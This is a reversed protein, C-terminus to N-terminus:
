GVLTAALPPLLAERFCAVSADAAAHDLQRPPEQLKLFIAREGFPELFPGVAARALGGHDHCKCSLQQDFQPPQDGGAFDWFADRQVCGLRGDGCFSLICLKPMRGSERRSDIVIRPPLVRTDAQSQHRPNLIPGQRGPAEGSFRIVAEHHTSGDRIWGFVLDYRSTVACWPPSGRPENLTSLVRANFLSQCAFAGYLCIGWQVLWGALSIALTALWLEKPFQGAIMAFALYACLAALQFLLFTPFDLLALRLRQFRIAGYSALILFALAFMIYLALGHRTAIGLVYTDFLSSM